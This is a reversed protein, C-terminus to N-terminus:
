RGLEARARDTALVLDSGKIVLGEIHVTMEINEAGTATGATAGPTSAVTGAASGRSGSAIAALGIKAAAGAAMLAAGAVISSVGGTVLGTLLTDRLAEIGEGTTMILLGAAICADALPSLLASIMAGADISEGASVANALEDISAIIGSQVASGFMMSIDTTKDLLEEFKRTQAEQRQLWEDTFIDPMQVEMAEAVATMGAFATQQLRDGKMLEILRQRELEEPSVGGGSGGKNKSRISNMQTQIRRTEEAFKAEQEYYGVVAQEIAVRDKDNLYRNYKEVFNIQAQTLGIDAMQKRFGAVDGSVARWAKKAAAAATEGQETGLWVFLDTFQRRFEKMVEEPQDEIAYRMKAAFEDLTANMVNGLGRTPEQELKSYIDLLKQGAALREEDSKTMDQLDIRLQAIEKAQRAMSINYSTNIEGMSDLAEYADRAYNAVTRLDRILNSFNLTALRKFMMDWSASMAATMRGWADGLQQNAQSLKAVVGIVATVAAAIATFKAIASSIGKTVASAFQDTASRGRRLGKEYEDSKLLLKVIVDGAKSM